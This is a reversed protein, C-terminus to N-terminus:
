ISLEHAQFRSGLRRGSLRYDARHGERVGILTV